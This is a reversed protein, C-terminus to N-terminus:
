HVQDVIFRDPSSTWLTCIQKHPQCRACSSAGSNPMCRVVRHSFCRTSNVVMSRCDSMLSMSFLQAQRDQKPSQPPKSCIRCTYHRERIRGSEQLNKSTSRLTVGAASHRRDVNVFRPLVFGRPTLRQRHPFLASTPPQWPSQCPNQARLSRAVPTKARSYQPAQPQISISGTQKRPSPGGHAIAL